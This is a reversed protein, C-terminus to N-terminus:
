PSVDAFGFAAPAVPLVFVFFPVRHIGVSPPNAAHVALAQHTPAALNNFAAEGVAVFCAGHPSGMQSVVFVYEFPQQNVYACEVQAKYEPMCGPESRGPPQMVPLLLGSSRGLAWKHACQVGKPVGYRSMEPEPVM